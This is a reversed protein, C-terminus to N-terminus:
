NIELYKNIINLIRNFEEILENYNNVIYNIDNNESKLQHELAIESLKNFGLYKSDSKMAHVLIAYNEMDKNKLYEDIKPMREKSVEIFDILTEDYMEMDGLFELALDVDIENIKLLNVDRM